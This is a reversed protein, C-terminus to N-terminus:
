FYFCFFRTQQEVFVRSQGCCRKLWESPLKIKELYVQSVIVTLILCVSFCITNSHFIDDSDCITAVRGQGHGGSQLCEPIREKRWSKFQASHAEARRRMNNVEREQRSHFIGSCNKPNSQFFFLWLLLILLIFFSTLSASFGQSQGFHSIYHFSPCTKYNESQM